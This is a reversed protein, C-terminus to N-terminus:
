TQDSVPLNLWLFLDKCLICKTNDLHLLIKSRTWIVNMEIVNLIPRVWQRLEDANSKNLGKTCRLFKRYLSIVQGRLLFHNLSMDSDKFFRPVPPTKSLLLLTSRM